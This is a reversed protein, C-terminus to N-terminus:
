LVRGLMFGVVGSLVAILMGGLFSLGAVDWPVWDEDPLMYNKM